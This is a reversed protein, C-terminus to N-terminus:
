NVAARPPRGLVAFASWSRIPVDRAIAARLALALARAPEVTRAHRQVDVVIGLAVDDPISATAGVVARSGNAVFAAAVSTWMADPHSAASTCSAVVVLEPAVDHELVDATGFDGDGLSLLTGDDRTSGHSAVHLVRARRAALLAARDAVAGLRAEVGLLAAVAVAEARANPLPRTADPDGLVVAADAAPDPRADAGAAITLTPALVLPHREILYRGGVPLAAWRVGELFRDPVIVLPQEAPPLEGAPLLAAGLARAQAAAPDGRVAKVLPALAALDAVRTLQVAGGSIRARWLGDEAAFFAILTGTVAAAAFSPGPRADLVRRTRVRRAAEGIRDGAAPDVAAVSAALQDVFDRTLAQEMAALAGATDGSRARLAFLSEYPARLERALSRRISRADAGDRLAEIAAAAGVLWHEADAARGREVLTRGVTHHVRSRTGPGLQTTALQQLTALAAEARAPDRLDLQARLLTLEAARDPDHGYSETTPALYREAQDLDARAEAARGDAVALAARGMHCRWQTGPDNRPPPPPAVCQTFSAAATAPRGAAADLEGATALYERYYSAGVDVQDTMTALTSSAARVDGVGLLLQTLALTMIARLDDDGAADALTGSLHQFRIAEDLAGRVVEVDALRAAINAALGPQRTRQAELAREYWGRADAPRGRALEAEGALTWLRPAMDGSAARAAAVVADHHQMRLQSRTAFLLAEPSGTRRHARTCAEAVVAASGRDGPAGATLEANL